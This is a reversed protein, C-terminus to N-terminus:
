FAHPSNLDRADDSSAIKKSEKRSEINQVSKNRPYESSAGKRGERHIGLQGSIVELQRRWLAYDATGGFTVQRHAIARHGAVVFLEHNGFSVCANRIQGAAIASERCFAGLFGVPANPGGVAADFISVVKESRNM